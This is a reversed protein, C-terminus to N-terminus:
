DKRSHCLSFHFYIRQSERSITDGFHFPGAPVKEHNIKFM